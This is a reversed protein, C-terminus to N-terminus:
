EFFPHNKIDNIGYKGACLRKEPEEVLFKLILDKANKGDNVNDNTITFGIEKIYEINIKRKELPNRKTKFHIIGEFMAFMLCGVSWWDATKDYGKEYFVEPAMYVMSECIIFTKDNKLIKNLGFDALKLHGESDLLINELKIDRHIINEKHLAELTLILEVMYFRTLDLSFPKM